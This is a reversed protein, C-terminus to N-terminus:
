AACRTSSPTESARRELLLLESVTDMLTAHLLHALAVLVLPVLNVAHTTREPLDTAKLWHLAQRSPTALKPTGEADLSRLRVATM